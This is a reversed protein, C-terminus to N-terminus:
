GIGLSFFFDLLSFFRQWTQNGHCLFTTSNLDLITKWNCLHCLPFCLLLIGKLAVFRFYLYIYQSTKIHKASDSTWWELLHIFQHHIWPRDHYSLNDSAVPWSLQYLRDCWYNLFCNIESLDTVSLGYAPSTWSNTPKNTKAVITNRDSNVYLFFFYCFLSCFSHAREQFYGTPLISTSCGDSIKLAAQAQETSRQMLLILFQRYCGYPQFPYM